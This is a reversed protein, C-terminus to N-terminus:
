PTPIEVAGAPVAIDHPSGTWLEPWSREVISGTPIRVQVLTRLSDAIPAAAGDIQQQFGNAGLLEREATTSQRIFPAGRLYVARDADAVHTPDEAALLSCTLEHRILLMGAPHGPLQQGSCTPCTLLEGATLTM